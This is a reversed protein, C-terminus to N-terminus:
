LLKQKKISDNNRVNSCLWKNQDTYHNYSRLLNSSQKVFNYEAYSSSYVNWQKQFGWQLGIGANGKTKVLKFQDTTQNYNEFIEVIWPVAVYLIPFPLM